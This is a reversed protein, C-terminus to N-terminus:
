IQSKQAKALCDHCAKQKCPKGSWNKVSFLDGEQVAVVCGEVPCRVEGKKLPKPMPPTIPIFAMTVPDPRPASAGLLPRSHLKPGENEGESEMGSLEAWGEEDVPWGHNPGWEAGENEEEAWEEEWDGGQNRQAGRGPYPLRWSQKWKKNGGKKKKKM